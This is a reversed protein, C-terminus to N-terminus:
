PLGGPILVLHPRGRSIVAGLKSPKEVLDAAKALLFANREMAVAVELKGDDRAQRAGVKQRLATDLLMERETM